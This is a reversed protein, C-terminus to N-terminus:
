HAAGDWVSVLLCIVYDPLPPPPAFRRPPPRDPSLGRRAALSQDPRHVPRSRSPRCLQRRVMYPRWSWRGRERGMGAAYDGSVNSEAGVQHSSSTRSLSSCRARPPGGGSWRATAASCSVSWTETSVRGGPPDGGVLGPSLRRQAADSGVCSAGARACVRGPRDNGAARYQASTSIFARRSRM